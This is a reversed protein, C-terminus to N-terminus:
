FTIFQKKQQKIFPMIVIWVTYIVFTNFLIKVPAALFASNLVIFSSSESSRGLFTLNADSAISVSIFYESFVCLFVVSILAKLEILQKKQTKLNIFWLKIFLILLGLFVVLFGLMSLVFMLTKLNFQLFYNNKIGEFIKQFDFSFQIQPDEANTKFFILSLYFFCLLGAVIFVIQLLSSKFHESFLKTLGSFFGFGILVILYKYHFYVPLFTVVALETVIAAAVGTIPGFAFGALKILIAQFSLRVAPIITISFFNSLVFVVSAALASFLAIYVIQNIQLLLSQQKWLRQTKRFNFFFYLVFLITLFIIGTYFFFDVPKTM